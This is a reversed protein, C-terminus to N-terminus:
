VASKLSLEGPLFPQERVLQTGMISIESKFTLLRVQLLLNIESFNM